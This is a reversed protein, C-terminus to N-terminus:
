LIMRRTSIRINTKKNNEIICNLYARTEAENRNIAEFVHESILSDSNNLYCKTNYKVPVPWM